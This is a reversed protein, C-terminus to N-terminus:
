ITKSFARKQSKALYTDFVMAINRILMAGTPTTYLGKENHILIGLDLYEQLSALEKAFHATFDLGWQQKFSAFEICLNNMLEMIVSKRLIDEQSLSIGRELPLRGEDIAKEYVALDKTNQAYYDYGEGISTLGIGITQSFGRTTYGQFNRRLSRSELALYLEDSKKAFHDMGIMAYDKQALFDITSKLIELKTKPSPLTSEDIKRMTKKMWPIHAYNFIALRDPNLSVVKELTQMFSEVSQYPLGYILDFNISNIGANRAITVARQVLEVSQFRHVAEQVREDFDQVGFSLRNFGGARLAQMQGDTFYRPDIECSVEASSAFNPFSKRVLEIVRALQKEDFFSPTGGGFHLQVVERKTDLLSSLIALEKQLYEIYREKKDEKSTYIVNCGCFYCASRCFPLHVYLSLPTSDQKAKEDNRIFAQKLDEYSFDQTFEVATPYSTYRPAQTSYRALFAFDISTSSDVKM